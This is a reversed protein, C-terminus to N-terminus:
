ILYILLSNFKCVFNAAEDRNVGTLYRLTPRHHNRKYLNIPLEPLIHWDDPKWDEYWSDLPVTFNSDM